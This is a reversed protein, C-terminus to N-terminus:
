SPKVILKPKPLPNEVKGLSVPVPVHAKCSPCIAKAQGESDFLLMRTRIKWGGDATSDMIVRRCDECQLM